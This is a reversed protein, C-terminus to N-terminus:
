GPPLRTLATEVAQEEGDELTEVSERAPDTEAPGLDPEDDPRSAM